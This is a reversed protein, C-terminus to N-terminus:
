LVMGEREGPRLPRCTGRRVLATGLVVEPVNAGRVRIRNILMRGLERGVQVTDIVVSTLHISRSRDGLHDFGIVSADRPVDRGHQRLAEIAGYALEDSGALVATLKRRAELILSVSAQGNDFPDDSVALTQSQPILSHEEMARLYAQYRTRFWPLETDGVYWIDSHGLQILYRTAEYAGRADDYRVRNVPGMAAGPVTHNALTVAPIHLRELAQILNAHICGAVIVGDAFGNSEIAPPLQIHTSDTDPSSHYRTFLISYGAQTCFEEIGMLIQAQIRTLELQNSLIFCLIPSQNQVFSRARLNPRYGLERIVKEVHSRLILDVEAHGNIVRSVTGVAVGAKAAVEKITVSRNPNRRRQRSVTSM